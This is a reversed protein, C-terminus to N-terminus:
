DDNSVVVTATALATMGEGRGIFGITENTTAKVSVRAPEITLITAISKRMADRHPNIKPAECILTVDVHTITGGAERVLRAAHALFQNSRADKWQPDSPPFHSGIDGDAIVSLLADTLAHLGVDADSHGDLRHTHPIEMGCLWVSNGPVWRHTDYGHGTRIDAIATFKQRATKMDEATTIKTNTASGAVLGVTMGMWEALATDDTFGGLSQARASRHAQLIEAFVFGQPTQAAYLANRDITEAVIGNQERKITDAIPVAPLAARSEGISGVVNSIVSASLFPRAADHILIKSPSFATLSELGARVSDQRTAGGFVPSILKPHPQIADQYSAMDDPHIVVVCRDVQEHRQFADLAHQLVSRGGLRRYQKPGKGGGARSGRGAAVIIAFVSGSNKM